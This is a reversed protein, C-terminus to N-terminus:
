EFKGSKFINFSVIRYFAVSLNNKWRNIYFVELHRIAIYQEVESNEKTQM